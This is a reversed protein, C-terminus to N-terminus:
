DDVRILARIAYTMMFCVTNSPKSRRFNSVTETMILGIISVTVIIATIAADVDVCIVARIAYTVMLFVTNSPKSGRNNSITKTIILGITSVAVIIASIAAFRFTCIKYIFYCNLDNYNPNHLYM